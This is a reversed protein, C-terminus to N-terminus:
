PSLAADSSCEGLALRRPVPFERHASYSKYQRGIHHNQVPRYWLSMCPGRSNALKLTEAETFRGKLQSKQCEGPSGGPSLLRSDGKQLPSIVTVAM